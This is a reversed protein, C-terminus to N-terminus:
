ERESESSSSSSSSSSSYNLEALSHKESFTPLLPKKKKKTACEDCSKQHLQKATPNKAKYGCYCEFGGTHYKMHQRLYGPTNFTKPCITCDFKTDSHVHMHQNMGRKSSFKLGCGREICPWKQVDEHKKLHDRLEYRFQCAFSCQGCKFAYGVHTKEHRELANTNSYTRQCTACQFPKDPHDKKCHNNLEKILKFVEDCNPCKHQREKVVTRKLGHVQVNLVGQAAPNNGPTADNNNAPAGDVITSSDSLNGSKDAETNSKESETPEPNNSKDAMSTNVATSKDSTSAEPHNSKDAANGNVATSKDSNSPEPHSSKDASSANVPTSKDSPKPDANYM